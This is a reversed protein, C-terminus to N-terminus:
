YPRTPESIHILSLDLAARWWPKETASSASVDERFASRAENPALAAVPAAPRFSARCVLPSARLTIRTTGASRTSASAMARTRRVDPKGQRGTPLRGLSAVANTAILTMANRAETHRTGPDDPRAGLKTRAM